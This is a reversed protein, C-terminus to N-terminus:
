LHSVMVTGTSERPATCIASAPFALNFGSRSGHLIGLASAHAASQPPNRATDEPAPYRAAVPARRGVWLEMHGPAEHGGRGKHPGSRPADSRKAATM